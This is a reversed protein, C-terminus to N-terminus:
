LPYTGYEQKIEALIRKWEEDTAVRLRAVFQQETETMKTSVM